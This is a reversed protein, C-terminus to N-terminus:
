KIFDLGLDKGKRNKAPGLIHKSRVGTIVVMVRITNELTEDIAAGWIIRAGPSIKSQLVEAVQEAQTVTM